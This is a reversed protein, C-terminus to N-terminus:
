VYYCFVNMLLRFRFGLLFFDEPRCAVSFMLSFILIAFPKMITQTELHDKLEPDKDGFLSVNLITVYDSVNGLFRTLWIQRVNRECLM